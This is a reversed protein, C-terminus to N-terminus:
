FRYTVTLTYSRGRPDAVRPEWSSGAGTNSDYAVTFPPDEDQGLQFYAALGLVMLVILLYRTLAPHELAWQSINFRRARTVTDTFTSM